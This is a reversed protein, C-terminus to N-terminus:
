EKHKCVSSQANEVAALCISTLFYCIYGDPCGAIKAEFRRQNIAKIAASAPNHKKKHTLVWMVKGYFLHVIAM